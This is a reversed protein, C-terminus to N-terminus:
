FKLEDNSVTSVIRQLRYMHEAMAIANDRDLDETRQFSEMEIRIASQPHAAIQGAIREAAEFVAADPVVQNVLHIRLAEAADIPEGTLLMQLAVARPIHRHILTLGGGGGMGYKIEPLGFRAGEGAIRIDTLHLLYMMGRGLCWGSVAAVIPKFRRMSMVERDHGPFGPERIDADLPYFHRTLKESPDLQRQKFKLDDGASFAREGAGRLIGVKVAPDAEFAKLADHLERHMPPDIANVKGNEITFTAVAGAVEYSIPM